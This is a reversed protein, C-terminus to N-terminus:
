RPQLTVKGARCSDINLGEWDKILFHMLTELDDRQKELIELYRREIVELYDAPERDLFMRLRAEVEKLNYPNFYIPASGCIEMISSTASALVPKGLSMAEIPPYGFGESLSPFLLAACNGLLWEYEPRSLYRLSTIWDRGNTFMSIWSQGLEGVIVLKVKDSRAVNIRDLAVLISRANKEWRDASLLLLYPTEVGAVKVLAQDIRKVEPVWLVIIRESPVDPFFSRFAYKSHESDTIMLSKERLALDVIKRYSKFLRRRRLFIYPKFSIIRAISRLSERLGSFSSLFIFDSFKPEIEINRVDHCIFVLEIDDSFEADPFDQVVGLFVRSIKLSDVFYALDRSDLDLLQIGNEECTARLGNDFPLSSSYTCVLVDDNSLRSKVEYFVRKVYESGGNFLYRGSPQSSRLDFLLRM